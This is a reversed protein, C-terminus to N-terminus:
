IRTECFKGTFNPDCVCLYNMGDAMVSCIGGNLCPTILCQHSIECDTGSFGALILIINKKLQSLSLNLFLNIVIAYVSIIEMELYVYEKIIATRLPM